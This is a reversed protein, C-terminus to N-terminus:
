DPCQAITQIISSSHQKTETRTGTISNEFHRVQTTLRLSETTKFMQGNRDPSKMDNILFITLEQHPFMKLHIINGSLRIYKEWM